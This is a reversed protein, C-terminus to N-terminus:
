YRLEHVCCNNDLSVEEIVPQLPHTKMDDQHACQDLSVNLVILWRRKMRQALADVPV